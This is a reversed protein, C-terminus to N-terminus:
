IPIRLTEFGTQSQSSGFGWSHKVKKIDLAELAKEISQFLVSIILWFSLYSSVKPESLFVM